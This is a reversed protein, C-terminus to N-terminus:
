VLPHMEGREVFFFFYLNGLIQFDEPSLLSEKVFTSRLMFVLQSNFPFLWPSLGRPGSMNM